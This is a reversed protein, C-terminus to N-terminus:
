FCRQERVRTYAQLGLQQRRRVEEIPLARLLQPLEPIQEDAVRLVISDWDIPALTGGAPLQPAQGVLVPVAGAALSEWLRLTNPGAGAPCLSFMSNSLLFNYREVAAGLDRAPAATDGDIQRRHVADEFHWSETVGIEFGDQRALAQLRLRTDTPYHAAHAGVFSALLPRAAADRGLVLGRRRGADEVNVAYLHWPHLTMAGAGAATDAPPAHSLWLDTLGLRQWTPLWSRWGVHQCVTHVRLDAGLARLVRRFGGIRVRQMLLEHDVVEPLTGRRGALDIWTAWPLGLYVHVDAGTQVAQALGAHRDFAAAETRAPFQWFLPDEAGAPVDAIPRTAAPLAADLFGLRVFEVVQHRDGVDTPRPGEPM